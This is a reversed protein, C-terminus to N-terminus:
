GAEDIAVKRELYVLLGGTVFATVFGLPLSVLIRSFVDGGSASWVFLWVHYFPYALTVAALPLDTRRTILALALFFSSSTMVPLSALGDEFAGAAIAFVVAFFLSRRVAFSQTAALLVPFGVGIFKPLMEEAAGGLVLTLLALLFQVRKNRVAFSCM